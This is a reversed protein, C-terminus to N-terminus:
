QKTTIQVVAYLALATSILTSFTPLYLRLFENAEQRRIRSPEVYVIDNQKLHYFPSNFLTRSNLDIRGYERKGATERIVLVNDKRGTLPIGGSASIADIITMKHNQAVLPGPAGVEGLMTIRYNIIRIEVVPQKLYDKLRNALEDKAERISLGAMKLRGIRPFDIFGSSDVLYSNNGGSIFAGNVGVNYSIGGTLFVASPKDEPAFSISAINIALVDDPQITAGNRQLVDQGIM